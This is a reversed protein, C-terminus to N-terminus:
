ANVTAEKKQRRAYAVRCRDSCFERRATISRGGEKRSHAGLRFWNLCEENRCRRFRRNQQIAEAAQHLLADRLSHPILKYGFTNPDKTSPLVAASLLAWGNGFPRESNRLAAVAAHRDGIDLQKAIESLRQALGIYFSMPEEVWDDIGPRPAQALLGFQHVFAFVGEPTKCSEAFRRWLGEEEELPRYYRLPGGNPKVVDVENLGFFGNPAGFMWGPLQAREVSYGDQDVSWVFDSFPDM